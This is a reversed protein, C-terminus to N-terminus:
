RNKSPSIHIQIALLIQFTGDTVINQYVNNPIVCHYCIRVSM